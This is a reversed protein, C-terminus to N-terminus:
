KILAEYGLLIFLLLSIKCLTTWLYSQITKSFFVNNKMLEAVISENKFFNYLFSLKYFFFFYMTKFIENKVCPLHM